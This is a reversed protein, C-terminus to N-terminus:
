KEETYKNKDLEARLTVLARVVHKEVAAISLGMAQAIHKHTEGRLRRRILVERRKRPLKDIAAAVLGLQERDIVIQESTPADGEIEDVLEISARRRQQRFHNLMLNEAIKFLLAPPNEVREQETFRILRIIADQTLDEALHWDGTKKALYQILRTRTDEGVPMRGSPSISSSNDLAPTCSELHGSASTGIVAERARCATRSKKQNEAVDLM